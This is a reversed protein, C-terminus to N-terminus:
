SACPVQVGPISSPTALDKLAHEPEPLGAEDCHVILDLPM